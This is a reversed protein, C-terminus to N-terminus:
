GHRCSLDDCTAVRVATLPCRYQLWQSRVTVSRKKSIVHYGHLIYDSDTIWDKGSSVVASKNLSLFVRTALRIGRSSHRPTWRFSFNSSAAARRSSRTTGAPLRSSISFPLWALLCLM